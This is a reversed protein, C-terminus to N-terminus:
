KKPASSVEDVVPISAALDYRIVADMKNEIQFLRAVSRGPLVKAFEPVFERKM